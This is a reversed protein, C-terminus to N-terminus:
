LGLVNMLVNRMDIDKIESGDKVSKISLNNKPNIKGETTVIIGKETEWVIGGFENFDTFAYIPKSEKMAIDEKRIEYFLLKM